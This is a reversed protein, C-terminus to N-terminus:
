PRAYDSHSLVNVPPTDFRGIVRAYYSFWSDNYILADCCALLYMEILADQAGTLGLVRRHLPGDGVTHFSKNRTVVNPLASKLAEEVEQSDTALFIKTRLGSSKRMTEHVRKYTSVVERNVEYICVKRGFGLHEGNGHRVHIGVVKVAGFQTERFAEMEQQIEPHLRLASFVMRQLTLAPFIHMPKNNVLTPADVDAGARFLDRYQVPQLKHLRFVPKPFQAERICGECAVRVGAIQDMPQFFRPFANASRDPLYRSNRWDIVLTRGTRSAYYWGGLISAIDSGIGTHKRSILFRQPM